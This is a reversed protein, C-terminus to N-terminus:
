DNEKIQETGSSSPDGTPRSVWLEERATHGEMDQGQQQLRRWPVM